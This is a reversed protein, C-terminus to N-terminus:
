IAGVRIRNKNGPGKNGGIKIARVRIEGKKNSSKSICTYENKFAECNEHSYYIIYLV